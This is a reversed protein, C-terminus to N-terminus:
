QKKFVILNNLFWGMYPGKKVFTLVEETKDDDLILKNSFLKKWYEKDQCNIHGDGGQGPQAATWILIGGPQLINSISDVIQENLESSIHEAVELCIVVDAKEKTDFLSQKFLYDKQPLRDDIDLGIADLYHSRM